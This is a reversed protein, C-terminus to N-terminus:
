IFILASYLDISICKIYIPHMLLIVSVLSDFDLYRKWFEASKENFKKYKGCTRFIKWPIQSKSMSICGIAITGERSVYCEYLGCENMFVAIFRYVLDFCSCSLSLFFSIRQKKVALQHFQSNLTASKIYLHNSRGYNEKIAMQGMSQAIYIYMEDMTCCYYYICHFSRVFNFFFSDTFKKEVPIKQIKKSGVFCLWEILWCQFAM